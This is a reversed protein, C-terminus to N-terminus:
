SANTLPCKPLQGDFSKRRALNTGSAEEIRFRDSSNEAVM